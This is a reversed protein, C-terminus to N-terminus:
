ETSWLVMSSFTADNAYARIAKGDPCESTLLLLIVEQRFNSRRLKDFASDVLAKVQDPEPLRDELYLKRKATEPDEEGVLLLETLAQSIQLVRAQVASASEITEGAIAIGMRLALSERNSLDCVGAATYQGILRAISTCLGFPVKRIDLLAHVEPVVKLVWFLVDHTRIETLM